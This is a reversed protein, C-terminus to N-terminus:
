DSWLPAVKVGADVRQVCQRCLLLREVKAGRDFLLVAQGAFWAPAGCDCRERVLAWRWEWGRGSWECDVRRYRPEKIHTRVRPPILRLTHAAQQITLPGQERYLKAVADRTSGM